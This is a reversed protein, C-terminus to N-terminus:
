AAEPMWGDAPFQPIIKSFLDHLLPGASRPRKQNLTLKYNM